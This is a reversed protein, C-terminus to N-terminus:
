AGGSLAFIIFSLIAYSGFIVVLGLIAWLMMDKGKKVRSENGASTMWEIGGWIFAIVALVGTIGLAGKILRNAVQSVREAGGVKKDIGLPDDLTTKIEEAGGGAGAEDAMVVSVNVFFLAVMLILIVVVFKSQIM